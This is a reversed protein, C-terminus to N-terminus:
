LEPLTSGSQLPALIGTMDLVDFLEAYPILVTPSAADATVQYQDFGVGVGTAALWVAHFNEPDPLLAEPTAIAAADGLVDAILHERAAAALGGLDGNVFLDTASILAGTETSFIWAVRRTVSTGGGVLEFTIGSVSFVDDNILEPAAQLTFISRSDNAPASGVSDLFEGVLEDVSWQLQDNIPLAVSDDPHSLVPFSTEVLLQESDESAHVFSYTAAPPVPQTSTSEPPPPAPDASSSTPAATTAPPGATTTAPEGAPDSCAPILALLVVTALAACTRIM